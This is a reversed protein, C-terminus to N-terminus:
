EMGGGLAAYLKVLSLAGDVSSDAQEMEAQLLAQLATIVELYSTTGNNMLEQTADVAQHLASIQSAFHPEKKIAAECESLAETVEHTAGIMTESFAEVAIKQEIENSKYNARLKGGQFIPQTLSALGNVIWKAPNSMWSGDASLTINPYMAVKSLQVDYYAMEIKREAARIDPRYRLLDAPVGIHFQQPMSISMAETRSVTHYPENLLKCIASEVNERSQELSIINIKLSELQAKTQHVAPSQYAGVEFLTEVTEYTKTYLVEMERLICIKKNLGVLQYYLQAMSSILRCRTAQEYDRMYELNAKAKRKSNTVGAGFFDLQWNAALGLKAYNSSPDSGMKSINYSPSFALTPLYGLRSAKYGLEAQEIRMAATKMSVNSELAKSILMQLEQEPFMTKWDVAAMSAVSDPVMDGYANQPISVSSQYDKYVGCSTFALVSCLLLCCKKM